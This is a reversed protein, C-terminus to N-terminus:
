IIWGSFSALYCRVVCILALCLTMSYFAIIYPTVPSTAILCGRWITYIRTPHGVMLYLWKHHYNKSCVKILCVEVGRSSSLREYIMENLGTCIWMSSVWDYIDIVRTDMFGNGSCLLTPTLTTFHM